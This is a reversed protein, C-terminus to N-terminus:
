RIKEIKTLFWTGSFCSQSERTEPDIYEVFYTLFGHELSLLILVVNSETYAGKKDKKANKTEMKAPFYHLYNQFKTYVSILIM